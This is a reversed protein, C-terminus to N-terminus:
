YTSRWRAAASFGYRGRRRPGTERCERAAARNFTKYDRLVETRPSSLLETRDEPM